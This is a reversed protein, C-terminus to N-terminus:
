NERSFTENERKEENIKRRKWKEFRGEPRGRLRFKQIMFNQVRWLGASCWVSCRFDGARQTFLLKGLCRQTAVQALMRVFSDEWALQTRHTKGPFCIKLIVHLVNVSLLLLGVISILRHNPLQHLGPSLSHTFSTAFCEWVPSYPNKKIQPCKSCWVNSKHTSSWVWLLNIVGVFFLAEIISLSVVKHSWREGCCLRKDSVDLLQHWGKEILAVELAQSLM